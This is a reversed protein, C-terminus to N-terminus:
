SVLYLANLLSAFVAKELTGQVAPLWTSVSPPTLPSGLVKAELSEVEGNPILSEHLEKRIPLYQNPLASIGLLSGSYTSALWHVFPVYTRVGYRVTLTAVASGAGAGPDAPLTSGFTITTGSVTYSSTPILGASSYLYLVDYQSPAYSINWVTQSVLAEFTETQVIFEPTVQHKSGLSVVDYQRTAQWCTKCIGDPSICTSMSRLFIFRLGSSSAANLRARNITLGTALEIRGILDLNLSQKEGLKTGCDAVNPDITIVPQLIRTVSNYISTSGIPILDLAEEFLITSTISRM